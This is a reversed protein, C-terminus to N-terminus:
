IMVLQKMKTMDTKVLWHYIAVQRVIKPRPDDLTETLIKEIDRLDEVRPHGSQNIIEKVAKMRCAAAKAYSSILYLEGFDKEEQLDETLERELDQAEARKSWVIDPCPLQTHIGDKLAERTEATMENEWDLEVSGLTVTSLSDRLESIALRRACRKSAGNLVCYRWHDIRHTQDSRNLERVHELVHGEEDSDDEESSRDMCDDNDDDDDDDVADDGNNDNNGSTSTPGVTDNGGDDDDHDVEPKSTKLEFNPAENQAGSSKNCDSANFSM